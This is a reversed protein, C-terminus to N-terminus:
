EKTDIKVFQSYVVESIYEYFMKDKIGKTDIIFKRIFVNFNNKNYKTIYKKWIHILESDSIDFQRCKLNKKVNSYINRFYTSGEFFMNSYINIYDKQFMMCIGIATSYQFIVLEADKILVNTNGYIIERNGFEKGTYEAKPHAAIVVDCNYDQEVIDFFGNLQDYYKNPDKVPTHIGRKEFDSHAVIYQDIFVVYRDEKFRPMDRCSRYEDYSESHILCNRKSLIEFLNPYQTYSLSATVFNFKSKYKMPGCFRSTFNRIRTNFNNKKKRKKGIIPYFLITLLEFTSRYLEKVLLCITNKNSIMTCDPSETINAFNYGNEKIVKRIYYSKYTYAHYPYILFFCQEGRVREIEAFMDYENNIYHTRGSNDVNAPLSLHRDSFTWNVTSWVEVDIKKNIFHEMGFVNKDFSYGHRREFVFIAKM